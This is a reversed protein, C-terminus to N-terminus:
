MSMYVCVYVDMSATSPYYTHIRQLNQKDDTQMQRTVEHFWNRLHSMPVSFIYPHLVFLGCSAHSSFHSTCLFMPSVVAWIDECWVYIWLYVYACYMEVNPCAYMMVYICIHVYTNGYICTCAYICTLVHICMYLYTYMCTCKCACIHMCVNVRLEMYLYHLCTSMFVHLCTSMYVHLYLCVSMYVYLCIYVSLYICTYTFAPVCTQRYVYTCKIHVYMRIYSHVCTCKYPMYVFLCIYM